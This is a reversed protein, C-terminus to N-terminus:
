EDYVIWNSGDGKVKRIAADVSLSSAAVAGPNLINSSGSSVTIADTTTTQAYFEYEVGKYPTAPLTITITGGTNHYSRHSDSLTLTIGATQEAASVTHIMWEPRGYMYSDNLMFRHRLMMRLYYEHVSGSLGLTVSGPVILKNSLLGGGVVILGTLRDTDSNNSKVTRAEKLIGWPYETGDTGTPNWEFLKKTTFNQGLILGPRLIHTNGTNGADRATGDITLGSIQQSEYTGWLFENEFTEVATTIGPVRDRGGYVFQTTM